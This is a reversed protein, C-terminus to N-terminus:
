GHASQIFCGSCYDPSNIKRDEISPYVMGCGTQHNLIGTCIFGLLENTEEDRLDDLHYTEMDRKEQQTFDANFLPLMPEDPGPVSKSEVPPLVQESHKTECSICIDFRTKLAQAIMGEWRFIVDRNYAAVGMMERLTVLSDEDMEEFLRQWNHMFAEVEMTHRDHAKRLQEREEDTPPEFPWGFGPM